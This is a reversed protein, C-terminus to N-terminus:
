EMARDLAKARLEVFKGSDVIKDQLKEETGEEIGLCTWKGKSPNDILKYKKAYFFVQDQDNTDGVNKDGYKRLQLMFTGEVRAISVKSKKVNFNVEVFLPTAGEGPNTKIPGNAGEYFPKGPSMRLELSSAFMQGKGGPRTEPNGYLIGIKERVQNIVLVTPGYGSKKRRNMLATEGRFMKNLLRAMAGVQLNEMPNALEESPTMHALSDVVVLDGDESQLFMELINAGQEANEPHTLELKSMDVGMKTAWDPDLTSELEEWLCLMPTFEHKEEGALKKGVHEEEPRICIRCTKQAKAVIKLCLTTKASSPEGFFQTTRGVPIGGRTCADLAFIGTPIRQIKAFEVKDGQMVTEAGYTKNIEKKQDAWKASKIVKIEGM